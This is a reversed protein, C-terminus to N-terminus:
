WRPPRAFASVTRSAAAGRQLGPRATLRAGVGILGLVAGDWVEQVSGRRLRRRGSGGSQVPHPLRSESSRTCLKAPLNAQSLFAAAKRIVENEQELMRIRKRAKRLEVSGSPTAASRTAATSDESNTDRLWKTLSPLWRNWRQEPSM